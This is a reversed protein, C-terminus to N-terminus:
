VVIEHVLENNSVHMTYIYLTNCISSSLCQLHLSDDTFHTCIHPFNFHIFTQYCFLFSSTKKTPCRVYLFSYLAVITKTNWTNPQRRYQTLYHACLCLYLSVCMNRFYQCFKGQTELFHTHCFETTHHHLLTYKHTCKNAICNSAIALLKM